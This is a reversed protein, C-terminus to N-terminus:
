ASEFDIVKGSITVKKGPAGIELDSLSHIRCRSPTLEILSGLGDGLRVEEPSLQIFDGNNNEIQITRNQDDLRIRQAGPTVWTFRQIMGNEVGADPPGKIGYLGGLVIAQDPDTNLLIVLVQDGVDPLAILGKDSGAGPVVVPLWGTEVDRYNPLHVRVRGMGDPDNIQSVTGLTAGTSLSRTRPRPPSTNIESVYGKKTDFLHKVTTLIYRGAFSEAVGSVLVPTGPRLHPNGEAIGWLVVERAIQRDLEAQALADAQLDDQVSSEVMTRLENGGMRNSDLHVSIQRGSRPSDARGRVPEVRHPDWGTTEVTRCTSDSNVEIRAELLSSGLALEVPHGIGELTFIRLIDEHLIFYFGCKEATEALLDFDSQNYQIINQRLPGSEIAEVHVGLDSVLSQALEHLNVQVHTCVPQRKRLRHLGDYGRVRVWRERSPGYEYNVATIEGAFLIEYFGEVRIQLPIGMLLSADDFIASDPELFTLECVTPLSLGQHVRVEALTRGDEASIPRGDLEIVIKTITVISSM